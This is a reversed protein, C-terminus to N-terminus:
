LGAVMRFGLVPIGAIAGATFLWFVVRVAVWLDAAITRLTTM